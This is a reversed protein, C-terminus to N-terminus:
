VERVRRLFDEDIELEPESEPVSESGAGPAPTLAPMPGPEAAAEPAPTAGSGGDVAPATAGRSGAPIEVFRVISLPLVFLSDIADVFVPRTGNLTRLNTCILTLDRATPEELLDALLPQENLIHIVANRIM